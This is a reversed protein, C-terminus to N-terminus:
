VLQTCNQTLPSKNNLNLNFFLVVIEKNSLWVMPSSRCTIGGWMVRAWWSNSQQCDSILSLGRRTKKTAGYNTLRKYCHHQVNRNWVKTCETNRCGTDRSDRVDEPRPVNGVYCVLTSTWRAHKRDNTPKDEGLIKKIHFVKATLVSRTIAGFLCRFVALALFLRVGRFVFFINSCQLALPCLNEDHRSLM